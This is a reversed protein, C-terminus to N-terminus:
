SKPTAPPEPKKMGPKLILRGDKIAEKYEPKINLRRNPGAVQPQGPAPPKETPGESGCGAGTGILVVIGCLARLLRQLQPKEM